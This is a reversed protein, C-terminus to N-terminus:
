ETAEKAISDVYEGTVILRTDYTKASRVWSGSCTILRILPKKGPGFMEDVPVETYPYSVISITKFRIKTGNKDVIYIYDGEKIDKLNKFVGKLGLANDVHGDILANGDEGPVVGYKFWAVDSFNTPIGMAGSQTLGTEQVRADISVTPIVLRSPHAFHREEHSALAVPTPISASEVYQGGILSSQLIYLCAFMSIGTVAAVIFTKLSNKKM